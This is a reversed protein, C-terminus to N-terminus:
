AAPVFGTEEAENMVTVPVGGTVTAVVGDTLMEDCPKALPLAAM